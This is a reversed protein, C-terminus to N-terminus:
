PPVLLIQLYCPGGLGAFARHVLARQMRTLIPFQAIPSNSFLSDTQVNASDPNEDESSPIMPLRGVVDHAYETRAKNCVFFGAQSVKSSTVWCMTTKLKIRLGDAALSIMRARLRASCTEMRVYLLGRCSCIILTNVDGGITVDLHRLTLIQIHNLLEVGYWLLLIELPPTPISLPLTPNREGRRSYLHAFIRTYDNAWGPWIEMSTLSTSEGDSEPFDRRLNQGLRLAQLNPARLYRGSNWDPLSVRDVADIALSWQASKAMIMRRLNDPLSLGYELYRVPISLPCRSRAFWSEVLVVVTDPVPYTDYGFVVSIGDYKLSQLGPIDLELAPTYFPGRDALSELDTGSSSTSNQPARFFVGIAWGRAGTFAHRGSSAGGSRIRRGGESGEVDLRALPTAKSNRHSLTMARVHPPAAGRRRGVESLRVCSGSGFGHLGSGTNVMSGATGGEVTLRRLEYGWTGRTGEVGGNAHKSRAGM